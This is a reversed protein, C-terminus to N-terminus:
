LAVLGLWKLPECGIWDAAKEISIEASAGEVIEGLWAGRDAMYLVLLRLIPPVDQLALAWFLYNFM